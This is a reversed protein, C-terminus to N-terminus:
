LELVIESGENYSFSKLNHPLNEMLERSVEFAALANANEFCTDGMTILEPAEFTTLAEANYFCRNGMTILKPAEFTTMAKANNFCDNGMATLMPAKFTTLAEASHFCRDRMTTLKPAEFTTLAKAHDFCGNGMTILKPAEFTKLDQANSFCRDRMITLKPAKFTTLAEANHFCRDLMTTLEPAEFTKLNQANSFCRDSMTTLMPAEFATLAEANHFCRDDMTTLMPAEFTTLAKAYSFCRDRMTTLKPAKFTTLARANSLCGHGMTTLEPLNLTKIQSHEAGILVEGNLTLNGNQVRLQSNGGYCRNFDEAFSDDSNTDINILSKSKNDFLFGDFLADGAGKNVAHIKGNKAWVQNGYYINNREEHYKLVQNGMLVFGEPLSAKSATFDVNFHEKLAISLGPIINDPNSNFTNDCGSVTHNYRNKISIFGGSKMMQISIVSTGYDDQRKEKGNYDSRKIKDAGQKIAHVIHYEKFRSVDNFTCLMEGTKFYPKISNQKELTDAHFADYGAEKLLDFPNGGQPENDNSALLGMLYKILPKAERGAHYLMIDIDPIELIGNHYDRLTKAFKEGNNKKLKKYM